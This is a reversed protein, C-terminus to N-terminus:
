HGNHNDLEKILIDKIIIHFQPDNLSIRQEKHKVYNGTEHFVPTFVIDNCNTDIKHIIVVSAAEGQDELTYAIRIEHFGEKLTENLGHYYDLGSMITDAIYNYILFKDYKDSDKTLEDVIINGTYPHTWNLKM